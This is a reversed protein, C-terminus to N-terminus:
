ELYLLTKALREKVTKESISVMNDSTEKLDGCVTIMLNKSFQNNTDFM